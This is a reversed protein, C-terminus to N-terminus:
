QEVWECKCYPCTMSYQKTLVKYPYSGLYKNCCPCVYEDMLKESAAKRDQYSTDKKRYNMFYLAFSIVAVPMSVYLTSAAVVSALIPSAIGSLSGIMIPLMRRRNMKQQELTIREIEAEYDDYVKALHSINYKKKIEEPKADTPQQLAALKKATEIVVSLSIPYRDKGLEITADPTIMKTEIEAGNVYTVNAPKLNYIRMDGKHNISIKAHAVGEAPKCRSVSDPVSGLDGIVGSKGSGQIAVMLRGNKPEKGILINKEKLSDM